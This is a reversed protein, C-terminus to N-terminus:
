ASGAVTPKRELHAKLKLPARALSEAKAILKNDSTTSMTKTIIIYM